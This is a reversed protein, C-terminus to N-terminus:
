IDYIFNIFTLYLDILKKEVEITGVRESLPVWILALVDTM